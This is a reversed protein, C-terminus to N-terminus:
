HRFRLVWSPLNGFHNCEVWRWGIWRCPETVVGALTSHTVGAVAHRQEHEACLNGITVWILTRLLVWQEGRLAREALTVGVGAGLGLQVLRAPSPPCGGGLGVGISCRLCFDALM